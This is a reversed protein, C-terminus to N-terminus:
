MERKHSTPAVSTLRQHHHHHHDEIEEFMEFDGDIDSQVAILILVFNNIQVWM